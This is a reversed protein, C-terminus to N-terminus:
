KLWQLFNNDKIMQKSIQMNPGKGGGRYQNKFYSRNPHNIHMLPFDKITVIEIGLHKARLHLDDDAGGYGYLNENWGGLKYWTEISAANFSGRGGNRTNIKLLENWNSKQFKNLDVSRCQVWYLKNSIDNTIQQNIYDILNPSMCMDIDTCIILNCNRKILRRIAINLAKSRCFFYKGDQKIHTKEKDKILEIDVNNQGIYYKFRKIIDDAINNIIASIGIM